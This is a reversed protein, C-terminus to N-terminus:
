IPDRWEYEMKETLILHRFKELVFVDNVPKIAPRPEVERFFDDQNDIRQQCDFESECPRPM